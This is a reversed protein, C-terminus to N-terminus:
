TSLYGSVQYSAQAVVEGTTSTFSSGPAPCYPFALTNGGTNTLIAGEYRAYVKPPDGGGTLILQGSTGFLGIYGEITSGTGARIVNASEGMGYIYLFVPNGAIYSTRAAGSPAANHTSGIIGSDNKSDGSNNAAITIDCGGLLIIKGFNVGGSRVFNILGLEGITLTNSPGGIVYLVVEHATVDFTLITPIRIGSTSTGNITSAGTTLDICYATSAPMPVSGSLMAATLLTVAPSSGQTAARVEAATSYAGSYGSAFAEASTPVMRSVNNTLVPIYKDAEAKAAACVASIV